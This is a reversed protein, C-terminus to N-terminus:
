RIRALRFHFVGDEKQPRPGALRFLRQVGQQSAYEYKIADISNTLALRREKTKKPKYDVKQAELNILEGKLWPLLVVWADNNEKLKKSLPKTRIESLNM